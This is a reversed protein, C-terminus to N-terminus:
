IFWQLSGFARLDFNVSFSLAHAQEHAINGWTARLYSSVSMKGWVHMHM